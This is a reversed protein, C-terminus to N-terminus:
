AFTFAKESLIFQANPFDWTGAVHDAHLHLVIVYRIQEPRIGLQLLKAVATQEATITVPTILSYLKNPFHRTCDYFRPTYGSDFLIYGERSHELLAFLAPFRLAATASPTVKRAM